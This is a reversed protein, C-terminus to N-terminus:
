RSGVQGKEKEARLQEAEAQIEISDKKMQAYGFWFSYDPSNHFAGIYTHTRNGQFMEWLKLEIPSAVDMFRLLDVGAPYDKPPPLIGDKYLAQVTSVAGALLKDASKITQDAADLNSQTFPQTHCKTCTTITKDRQAQWEEATLRAVKGGIVVDLRGTPNGKEDLVGLGQLITARYGMWEEDKEPLRMGLFGWATIIGHNGEQMHCTVCVAARPTKTSAQYPAAYWDKIKADWNWSDGEAAYVAGHKSTQWAEYQPHDFGIHCQQCAEPKRAEAASFVHRTHCSDCKGGDKGIRHCGGCGKEGAIMEAPHISTTPMANMAAMALAHKGDAFQTVQDNHCGGTCNQPAVAKRVEKNECTSTSNKVEEPADAAPIHCKDCGVGKQAHVSLQWDRIASESLGKEEHCGICKQAEATVFPAPVEAQAQQVKVFGVVVVSALLLLGFFGVLLKQATLSM